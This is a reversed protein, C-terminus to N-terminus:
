LIVFTYCASVVAITCRPAAVIIVALSSLKHCLTKFDFKSVTIALVTLAPNVTQALYNRLCTLLHIELTCNFPPNRV